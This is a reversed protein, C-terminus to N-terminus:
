HVEFERFRTVESLISATLDDSKLGVASTQSKGCLAGLAVKEMLRLVAIKDARAVLKKETAASADVTIILLGLRKGHRLADDVQNAGILLRGAKRAMGLLNILRQEIIRGITAQLEVSDVTLIADRFARQFGKRSAAQAVCKATCCTYAGRGPLKQRYDVVLERTPSLVYRLMTQKDASTRCALCMRQPPHQRESLRNNGAPVETAQQLRSMLM